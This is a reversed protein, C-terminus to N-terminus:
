AGTPWRLGKTLGFDKLKLILHYLCDTPNDLSKKRPKLIHAIGRSPRQLFNQFMAAVTLVAALIGFIITCIIDLEM